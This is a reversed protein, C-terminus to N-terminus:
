RNKKFNPVEVPVNGQAISLASLPTISSWTVVDYVDFLPPRGERISEVFERLVFFDGGGHGAKEAVHGHERWLPHEFEERYKSIPEWGEASGDANTPSRGEIWILPEVAPDASSTYSAKTGQLEYATMHHPRASIWDNRSELLVGKQTRLLTTVTDPHRWQSAHQLAAIDPHNRKIYHDMAGGCSQWSATTALFDTKNIGLWRCIPGLGHTPYTNAALDSRFKGRWTLSGDEYFFLYRCDHIYSGRAYVLDGFIGQEIMNQVMLIDRMFCYNEAMMYTRGSSEVAEVLAWCDELNHAATVESIVHKGAKLAAISQRAHLPVPTAICVADVDPDTLLEAYDSYCKLDPEARWPELMEPSADCIAVLRVSGALSRASEIFTKGRGAGVVAFRIENSM